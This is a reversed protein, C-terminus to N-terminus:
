RAPNAAPKPAWEGLRKKEVRGRNVKAQGDTTAFALYTDWVRESDKFLGLHEYSNALIRYANAQPHSGLRLSPEILPPVKSYLHERFYLSAEPYPADPDLPFAKRYEIYVAIAGGYDEVNELMWGLDTELDYDHPFLQQLVRISQIARPFDGDKFWVDHQQTARGRILDLILSTRDQKQPSHAVAAAAVVMCMAFVVIRKM